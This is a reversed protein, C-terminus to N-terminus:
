FIPIEGVERGASGLCQNSSYSFSFDQVEKSLTQHCWGACHENGTVNFRPAQDRRQTGACGGEEQASACCCGIGTTFHSSIVWPFIAGFWQKDVAWKWLVCSERVKNRLLDTPNQLDPKTTVDAAKPPVCPEAKAQLKGKGDTYTLSTSDQETASYWLGMANATQSNSTKVFPKQQTKQSWISVISIICSGLYIFSFSPVDPRSLFHFWLHALRM